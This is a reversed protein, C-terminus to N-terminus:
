FRVNRGTGVENGVARQMVPAADKGIVTNPKGIRSLRRTETRRSQCNRLTNQESLKFGGTAFVRRPNLFCAWTWRRPKKRPVALVQPVNRIDSDLGFRDSNTRILHPTSLRRRDRFHVESFGLAELDPSESISIGLTRGALPHNATNM